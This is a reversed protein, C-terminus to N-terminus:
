VLRDVLEAFRSARQDFTHHSLVVNRAESMRATYENPHQRQDDLLARLEEPSSFVPILDDFVEELGAVPDTFVVAGSAVADFLRNSIFGLRSMDPWHDNLVVRAAAYLSSLRDNPFHEGAVVSHPIVGDWGTGYVTLDAGVEIAADVAMRRQGRSNGVFLVNTALDPDAATPTFRAPDTAQYMVEVPVSVQERLSEAFRRSAVLVLDYGDCERPTVDEPHSIVWLVNRHGEKPVYTGLGRIHVAVDICQNAPLDWEPLIHIATRFGTRRLASAFSEAFYTDGWLGATSRDPPGIKLGVRTLDISQRAATIVDTARREYTHRELVMRRLSSATDTRLADDTLFRNLLARQEASDRYTPLKGDFLEQSGATNNTIVLAGCATADFVRSNVAGYPLTPTATEDIIIKSSSYVEPLEAYPLEGRNYRALRPVQDWGKGFIAFREGPMVQVEEIGPRAAKWYNCTTAYDTAYVANHPRPYFRAPNTALPIVDTVTVGAATLIEASAASSPIYVDFDLFWPQEAWRDTWNRVWAITVADRPARRVDFGDILSIVVSVDAPLDYWRDEHREAYFVQRGGQELAEGLEHATYWDGWGAKPDNRTVTIAIMGDTRERISAMVPELAEHLLRRSLSGAWKEAFRQVNAL